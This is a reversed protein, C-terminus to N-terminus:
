QSLFNNFSFKDFTTHSSEIDSYGFNKKFYKDRIDSILVGNCTSNNLEAPLEVKYKHILMTSTIDFNITNIWKTNYYNVNTFTVNTFDCEIFLVTDFTPDIFVCNTFNCRRFINKYFMDGDCNFTSNSFDIDEVNCLRIYIDCDKYFCCKDFLSLSMDPKIVYKDFSVNEFVLVTYTFILEAIDNPFVM